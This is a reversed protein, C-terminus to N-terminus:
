ATDATAGPIANTANIPCSHRIWAAYRDARKSTTSAATVAM